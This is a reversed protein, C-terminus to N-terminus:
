VEYPLSLGVFCVPHIFSLLSEGTKYLRLKSRGKVTCVYAESLAQTGHQGLFELSIFVGPQVDVSFRVGDFPVISCHFPFCKGDFSGYLFNLIVEGCSVESQDSIMSWKLPHSLCFVGIIMDDM